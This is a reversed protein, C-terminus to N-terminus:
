ISLIPRDFDADQKTIYLNSFDCFDVFNEKTWYVLSTTAPTRIEIPHYLHPLQFCEDDLGSFWGYSLLFKNITAATCFFDAAHFNKDDCYQEIFALALPMAKYDGFYDLVHLIRLNEVSTEERICVFAINKNDPTSITFTKYTFFPHNKYRWDIHKTDRTFLNLEKKTRNFLSEYDDQVGERVVFSSTEPQRWKKLLKKALPTQISVSNLADIDFIKIFRPIARLYRFGKRMYVPLAQSSIGMGILVDYSNQIYELIKPGVGLGQYESAVIWTTLEAGSKWKNNLSFPRSNLGMVGIIKKINADYAIVCNDIELASPTSKFQWDYFQSNTLAIKREWHKEYFSSVLASNLGITSVTGINLEM